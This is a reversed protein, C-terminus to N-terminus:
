EVVQGIVVKWKGVGCFIGWSSMMQVTPKLLFCKDNNLEWVSVKGLLVIQLICCTICM